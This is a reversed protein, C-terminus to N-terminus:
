QRLWKGEKLDGLLAVFAQHTPRLLRGRCILQIPGGDYGMGIQIPNSLQHQGRCIHIIGKLFLKKM